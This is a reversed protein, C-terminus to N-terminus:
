SCHHSPVGPLCICCPSSEALQETKLLHLIYLEDLVTQEYLAGAKEYLWNQKSNEETM